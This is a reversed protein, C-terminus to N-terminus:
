SLFSSTKLNRICIERLHWIDEFNLAVGQEKKWNLIYNKHFDIKWKDVQNPSIVRQELIDSQIRSLDSEASTVDISNGSINLYCHAEPLYELDSEELERGIGPTNAETMKYMCLVLKVDVWDQEIAILSFLAHKSSCTGQGEKLVLDFHGRNANRGYPLKRLGGLLQDEDTFGKHISLDSYFGKNAIIRRSRKM